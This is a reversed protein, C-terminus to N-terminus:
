LVEKFGHSTNVLIVKDKKSIKNQYLLKKLAGYVVASSREVYLGFSALEKQLQNADEHETSVARGGSKDIAKLTQLTVTKGAISPTYKRALENYEDFYKERQNRYNNIFGIRRFPEVGIMKPFHDILDLQFLEDFGKWIGWLLDGRACPVIVYDPVSKLELIIESAVTKYGEVGFPNSGVPPHIFNTAPYYGDQVLKENLQWREMSDKLLILHAGSLEIAQKWGMNINDTSVIKCDIGSLSAYYALSVGANGSSSAVVGTMGNLLAKAVILPSMRDKHSGTPNASENKIWVHETGLYENLRKLYVIPSHGEGITEYNKIPLSNNNYAKITKIDAFDYHFTLSAPEGKKYCTPCGYYYDDVKYKSLCHICQMELLRKNYKLMRKRRLMTIIRRLKIM